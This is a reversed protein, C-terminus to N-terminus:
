QITKKKLRGCPNLGLFALCRNAPAHISTHNEVSHMLDRMSLSKLRNLNELKCDLRVFPRIDDVFKNRKNGSWVLCSVYPDCKKLNIELWQRANTNTIDIWIYDIKNSALDVCSRNVFTSDYSRLTNYSQLHRKVEGALPSDSIFLFKSDCQEAPNDVYDEFGKTEQRELTPPILEGMKSTIANLINNMLVTDLGGELGKEDETEFRVERALPPPQTENKKENLKRLRGSITAM